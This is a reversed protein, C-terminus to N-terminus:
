SSILIACFILIALILLISALCLGVIAMALMTEWIWGNEALALNFFTAKM